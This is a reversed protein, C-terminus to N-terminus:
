YSACSSLDSQSASETCCVDVDILKNSTKFRCQLGQRPLLPVQPESLGPFKVLAVCLKRSPSSPIFIGLDTNDGETGLNRKRWRSPMSVLTDQM